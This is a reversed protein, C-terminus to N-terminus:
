TKSHTVCLVSDLTTTVAMRAAAAGALCPATLFLTTGLVVVALATIALILAPRTPKMRQLMRRTGTMAGNWYM